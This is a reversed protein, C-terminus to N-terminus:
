SVRDIMGILDSPYSPAPVQRWNHLSHPYVRDGAHFDVKLVLFVASAGRSGRDSIRRM